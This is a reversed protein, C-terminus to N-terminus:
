ANEEKTYQLIHTSCEIYTTLDPGSTEYIKFLKSSVGDEEMMRIKINKLYNKNNQDKEKSYSYFFCQTTPHKLNYFLKKEKNSDLMGFTAINAIGEDSIGSEMMPKTHKFCMMTHFVYCITENIKEWYKDLSVNELLDEIKSNDILYIKKILGSRAYEQLVNSVVNQQLAGVSSLTVPDSHICVVNTEVGKLQELIRLSAGSINGSASLFLYTEGKISKFLKKFSPCKKEYDEATKQEKIDKGSDITLTNYQSYQSLNNVIKSGTNGLGILNIM